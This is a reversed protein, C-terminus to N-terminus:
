RLLKEVGESVRLNGEDLQGLEAYAAALDSLWSPLHMTAGTSRWAGIGSTIMQVADAARGTLDFLWGRGLMGWARWLAADKEDALALLEDVRGNAETYNGCYSDVFFFSGILTWALSAAHASERADKLAQDIDALATEPYGLLWLANSRFYLNSVRPDEGGFRTALPRHEAADYLAIGQDFHM